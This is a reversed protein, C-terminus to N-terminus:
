LLNVPDVDLLVARDPIGKGTCFALCAALAGHLASRRTSKLLFQFRYERKIRALPAAAPGLVKVGRADMPELFAGIQRSWRIAQELDTHRVLLSALASFPPYHM